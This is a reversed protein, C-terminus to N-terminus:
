SSGNVTDNVLQAYLTDKAQQELPMVDPMGSNGSQLAKTLQQLPIPVGGMGHLMLVFRAETLYNRLGDAAADGDIAHVSYYVSLPCLQKNINCLATYLSLRRVEYPLM